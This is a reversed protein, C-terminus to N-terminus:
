LMSEDVASDGEVVVGDVPVRDGPKLAVLDNTQLESVPIELENTAASILRSQEDEHPSTQASERRSSASSVIKRATQPAPNLLSKLAADAKDSGRAEFWHGTSILTIIAAAEMFYLHGGTGSLLAWTSYGFATTSGLAVLTDMNSSGVKLQNWAGRYFQAGAFFQVVAAVAFSLWRFWPTFGLGVAWEGIMLPVTGLVGIWLNIQWSALAHQGHDHEHAPTEIVKAGYGEAEIAHIIKAADPNSGADWRVSAQRGELDVIASHVGPVGQIAETVHRACNGCTMGTVSLETMEARPSSTPATAEITHELPMSQSNIQYGFVTSRR